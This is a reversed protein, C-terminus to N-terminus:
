EKIIKFTKEENDNFLKVIYVGSAFNSVDLNVESGLGQRTFVEQGLQNYVQINGIASKYAINLSNKAPVPYVLLANTDFAIIGLSSITLNFDVAQGFGPVEGLGFADFSIACPNTVAVSEEDTYTKTIRVRTTETIATIPIAIDLDVFVGDNGDSNTLTGVEYVEGSDDLVDNNNWDIFAAINTEFNGYTNGYVKLSFTQGQNVAIPTSTFDVLVDSTNTNNIIVENFSVTTIEEVTVDNPDSITCYPDPFSQANLGLTFLALLLTTKIM